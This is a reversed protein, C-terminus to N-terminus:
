LVPLFILMIYNITQTQNYFIAHKKKINPVRKTNLHQSTAIIAIRGYPLSLKKFYNLFYIQVINKMICIYYYHIRLNQFHQHMLAQPTFWHEYLINNLENLCRSADIFWCKELVLILIWNKYTYWAYICNIGRTDM